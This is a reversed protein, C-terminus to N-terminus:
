GEGPLSVNAKGLVHLLAKTLSFCNSVCVPLLSVFM